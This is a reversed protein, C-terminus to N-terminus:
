RRRRDAVGPEGHRGNEHMHAMSSAESILVMAASCHLQWLLAVRRPTAGVGEAATNLM